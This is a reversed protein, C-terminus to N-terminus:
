NNPFRHMRLTQLETALRQPDASWNACAEYPKLIKQRTGTPLKGLVYQILAADELGDRLWKLRLSPCPGNKSAYILCGDGNHHYRGEVFTDPNRWPDRGAPFHLTDWYLLGRLNNAVALWPVIRFNMPSFDIQWVPPHADMKGRFRKEHGEPFYSLASYAWVHDGAKQRKLFEPAANQQDLWIDCWHVAWIDVSGALTGWATNESRPQETVLHRLRVGYKKETDRLLSGWARVKAYAEATAPEDVPSNFFFRDQWGQGDLTKQTSALYQMAKARDRGLPEEIPWDEWMPLPLNAVHLREFYHHYMGLPLAKPTGDEAIEIDSPLPDDPALKHEALLTHYRWAMARTPEHTASAPLGHLQAIRRWSCGFCSQLVPTAPLPIDWIKLEIPLSLAIGAGEATIEGEYSGAAIKQPIVLDVWFPQNQKDAGKTLNQADIRTEEILADPYDGPPLPANNSSHTITVYHQRYVTGSIGALSLKPRNLRCQILTEASGSLIVQFSVTEGRCADLKIPANPRPADTRRIREL